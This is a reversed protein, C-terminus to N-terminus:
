GLLDSVKVVFAGGPADITITDGARCVRPAAYTRDAAVPQRFELVTSDVLSIILYQAIGVGAYIALKTTRDHELSTDAVEIVCVVSASGPIRSRYDAPRGRVVAGDPEPVNDPPLRIPQQVQVFCGLRRIDLLTEQMQNVAWAHRDGITLLDGGRDGRDKYVLFGDLLEIPSGERIAGGKIMQEYQEVTLPVLHAHHDLMNQLVASM